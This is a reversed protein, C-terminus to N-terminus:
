RYTILWFCQTLGGYLVVKALNSSLCSSHKLETQLHLYKRLNKMKMIMWLTNFMASLIGNRWFIFISCCRVHIRQGFRVKDYSIYSKVGNFPNTWASYGKKLRYFFWDAYFAPIDTSRSASIILPAQMSVITGDDIPRSIKTWDAM